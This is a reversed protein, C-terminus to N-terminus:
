EFFDKLELNVDHFENDNFILHINKTARGLAYCFQNLDDSKIGTIIIHEAELSAIEDYQVIRHQEIAQNTLSENADFLSIGEEVFEHMEDYLALSFARNPTIILCTEQPQAHRLLKKFALISQMYLNGHYLTINPINQYDEQTISQHTCLQILADSIRYSQALVRQEAQAMEAKATIFHLLKDSQIHLLYAIFESSLLEMDDCIILDAINFKKQMMKPTIEIPELPKKYLSQAHNELLQKPTMVKITSLDVDVIAYEISHLLRQRMLECATVTPEIILIREKPHRIKQTLVKLLMLTSKGSGYPGVLTSLSSFPIDIYNKQQANLLKKKPLGEDDLLTYQMFLTSILTETEVEVRDEHEFAADIKTTLSELTEDSFLARSKPILKHFSNDLLDFEAEKLNDFLVFSKTIDLDQHLIENFKQNIVQLTTDISLAVKKKNSPLAAEVTAEKISEFDWELSKFLLIGHHPVILLAELDIFSRHYYVTTDSFLINKCSLAYEQLLSHLFSDKHPEQINKKFFSFAM